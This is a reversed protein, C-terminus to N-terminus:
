ATAATRPSIAAPPPPVLQRYGDRILGYCACSAAELGARDVVTVKGRTYRILGAKQLAGAALTVAPRHTGLMEALFQQTLPLTAGGVRDHTMLLWRACREELSHLRNCAATQAIQGFLAQVYRFLVRELAASERVATRLDDATISLASGAVQVFARTAMSEAHLLIPVGAMGERGATGVEVVGDPMPSVMSVLGSTPFYAHTIPADREILVKGLPLPVRELHPELRAYEDVPLAALLWNIESGPAGGDGADERVVRQARRPQETRHERSHEM